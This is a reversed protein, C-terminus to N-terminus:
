GGDGAGEGMFLSPSDTQSKEKGGQPPLFASRLDSPHPALIKGADTGRVSGRQGTWFVPHPLPSHGPSLDRATVPRPDDTQSATPRPRNAFPFFCSWRLGTGIQRKESNERQVRAAEGSSRAQALR